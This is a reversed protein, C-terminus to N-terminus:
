SPKRRASMIKNVREVLEWPKFPKIVYDNAGSEFGLTIDTRDRRATLLLIPIENTVINGRLRKLVEFGDLDLMNVDLVIADPLHRHVAELAQKGCRAIECELGSQEFVESIISVIAPDDDAVLVRPRRKLTRQPDPAPQPPAAKSILRNARVLVEEADWPAILFDCARAPLKSFAPLSSRSGIFVAPVVWQPRRLAAQTSLACENVILADFEIQNEVSISKMRDFVVQVHATNAAGRIRNAEKESFDVLGIRMNGRGIALDLPLVPRNRTAAGFRRRMTEVAKGIEGFELAGPTLLAEVKRAQNSIGPFGLSGGLGAWRHLLRRLADIACAPDSHLDKLVAGCQELGEALFSNRIEALLDGSDCPVGPDGDAVGRLFGRVQSAFTTTDIPKSIHGNCGAERVGALDSSDTYATLAVIPTADHLPHLRLERTLELGDKGPLQLDMLILDPRLSQMLDLAKEASEATHVTHGAEELLFGVLKSQMANDEIVLIQVSAM